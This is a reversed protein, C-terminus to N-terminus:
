REQTTRWGIGSIAFPLLGRAYVPWRRPRYRRPWSRTSPSCEVDSPLRLRAVASPSRLGCVGAITPTPRAGWTAACSLTDILQSAAQKSVGLQRVLDGASGGHNVIGGLVYAGNRPLDDYGVAELEARIAHGYSGRAARLLPPIGVEDSDQTTPM